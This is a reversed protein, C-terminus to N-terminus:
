KKAEVACGAIVEVYDVVPVWNQTVNNEFQANIYYRKCPQM